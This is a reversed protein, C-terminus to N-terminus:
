GKGEDRGAIEEKGRITATIKTVGQSGHKEWIAQGLAQMMEGIEVSKESEAVGKFVRNYGAGKFRVTWYFTRM